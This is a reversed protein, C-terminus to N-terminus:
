LMLTKWWKKRGTPRKVVEVPNRDRRTRGGSTGWEPGGSREPVRLTYTSSTSSPSRRCSHLYPLSTTPNTENWKVGTAVLHLSSILYLSSGYPTIELVELGNLRHSSDLLLKNNVLFTFNRSVSCIISQLVLSQISSYVPVRPVLSSMSPSLLVQSQPDHSLTGSAFLERTVATDTKWEMELRMTKHQQFRNVGSTFLSPSFSIM